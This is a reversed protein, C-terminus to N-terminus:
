RLWELLEIPEHLYGDAQWSYPDDEQHLYGYLAVLSKTGAAKSAMVDTAADGVYACDAPQQKLLQCAKLIPEPHPKAKALSDGCILCGSREYINLSKLLPVAHMTLKNTVIGWPISHSELYDLVKETNPFFRTSHNLHEFYLALFKERMEKFKKHSEDIGLAQKILVKSGLNAISRISFLSLAPLHYEERLLNLAYLLDPATDLLTGDLDFLVAQISNVIQGRLFPLKGTFRQM